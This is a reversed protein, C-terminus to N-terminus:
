RYGKLFFQLGQSHKIVANNNNLRRPQKGKNRCKESRQDLKNKSQLKGWAFPMHLVRHPALVMHLQETETLHIYM